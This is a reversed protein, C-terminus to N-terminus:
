GVLAPLLAGLVIAVVGFAAVLRVLTNKKM